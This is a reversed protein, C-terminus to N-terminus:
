NEKIWNVLVMTSGKFQPDDGVITIQCIQNGKQFTKPLNKQKAISSNIRERKWGQNTLEVNIWNENDSVSEQNVSIITESRVDRDTSEVKTVVMSDPFLPFETENNPKVSDSDLSPTVTLTGQSSLGMSQIQISYYYGDIKAGLTEVQQLKQLSVKDGWQEKYFELVDYGNYIRPFGL